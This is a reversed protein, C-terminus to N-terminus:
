RFVRRSHAMLLQYGDVAKFVGLDWFGRSVCLCKCKRVCARMGDRRASLRILLTALPLPLNKSGGSNIFSTVPLIHRDRETPFFSHFLRCRLSIRSVGKRLSKVCGKAECGERSPHAHFGHSIEEPIGTHTHTHAHIYTKRERDRQGWFNQVHREVM